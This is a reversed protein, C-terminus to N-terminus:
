VRFSICTNCTPADSHPLFPLYSVLYRSIESSVPMNHYALHALLEEISSLQRPSNYSQIVRVDTCVSKVKVSMSVLLDDYFPNTCVTQTNYENLDQKFPHHLYTNERTPPAQPPAVPLPTYGPTSRVSRRGKHNASSVFIAWHYYVAPLSIM